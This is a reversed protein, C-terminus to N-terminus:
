TLHKSINFVELVSDKFHLFNYDIVGSCKEFNDERLLCVLSLTKNIGKAYLVMGNTLKIICQQVDNKVKQTSYHFTTLSVSFDTNSTYLPFM